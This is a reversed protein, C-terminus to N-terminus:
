KINFLIPTSNILGWFFTLNCLMIFRKYFFLHVNISSNPLFFYSLLIKIIIICAYSLISKFFWYRLKTKFLLHISGNIYIYIYSNDELWNHGWYIPLFNIQKPGLFSKRSTMSQWPKHRTQLPFNMTKKNCRSPLRTNKGRGYTDKYGQDSRKRIDGFM